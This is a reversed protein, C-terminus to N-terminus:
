RHTKVNDKPTKKKNTKKSKKLRQCNTCASLQDRRQFVPKGLVRRLLTAERLYRAAADDDVRRLRRALTNSREDHAV